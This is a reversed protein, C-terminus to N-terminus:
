RDAQEVVACPIQWFGNQIEFFCFLPECPCPKERDYPFLLLDKRRFGHLQQGLVLGSWPEAPAVPRLSLIGNTPPLEPYSQKSIRRRLCLHEGERELVGLRRCGCYLREVRDSLVECTAELYWYLGQEELHCNGVTKEDFIIPLEM